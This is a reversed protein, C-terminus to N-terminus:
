GELAQRFLNEMEAADPSVFLAVFRGVTVIRAEKAVAYQDPLYDQTEACIQEVRARALDQVAKAGDEDAAEVLWIEDVRLGEGCIAVLAQSCAAPDLGTYDLIKKESLLLMEPLELKEGLQAYVQNLDANIEKPASAGCATLLVLALALLLPLIRKTTKIM